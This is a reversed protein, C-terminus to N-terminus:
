VSLYLGLLSFNSHLFRLFLVQVINITCRLIYETPALSCSVLYSTSAYILFPAIQALMERGILPLV